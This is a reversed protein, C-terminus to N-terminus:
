PTGSPPRQEAPAAVDELVLVLLVSLLIQSATVSFSHGFATAARGSTAHSMRLSWSLSFTATSISQSFCDFTGFSSHSAPSLLIQSAIASFSHGFARAARGSTAHSIRLSWSLSFTATSIIQSFCVLTGFSSHSAPSVLIQSRTTSFSHWFATPSRGSTAHAM